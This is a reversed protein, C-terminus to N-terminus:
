QVPKEFINDLFTDIMEDAADGFDDALIDTIRDLARGYFGNPAIGFRWINRRIAFAAGLPDQFGKTQAWSQLASIFASNGGGGQGELYEPHPNVGYEVYYWYSPMLIGLEQNQQDYQVRINDALGNSGVLSKPGSGAFARNRPPSASYANGNFGPAYPQPTALQLQLETKLRQGYQEFFRALQEPNM